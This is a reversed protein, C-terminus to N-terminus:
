MAPSTNSHSFSSPPSAAIASCSCRWPPGATRSGRGSRAEIANGTAFASRERMFTGNVSACRRARRAIGSAPAFAARGPRLELAMARDAAHARRDVVRHRDFAHLREDFEHAFELRLCPQARELTRVSLLMELTPRSRTQRALAVLDADLIASGSAIRTRECSMCAIAIGGVRARSRRAPAPVLLMGTSAILLRPTGTNLAGPAFALATFSSTIAPMSIAARLRSGAIRKTSPSRPRRRSAAVLRDFVALLFKAPMSSGRCVSPTM